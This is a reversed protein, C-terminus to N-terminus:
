DDVENQKAACIYDSSRRSSPLYPSILVAVPFFLARASLAIAMACTRGEECLVPLAHEKRRLRLQPRQTQQTHLLDDHVAARLFVLSATSHNTELQANKKLSLRTTPNKMCQFPKTSRCLSAGATLKAFTLVVAPNSVDRVCCFRASFLVCSAPWSDSARGYNSVCLIDDM